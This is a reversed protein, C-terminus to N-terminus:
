RDHGRGPKAGSRVAQRLRRELVMVALSMLTNLIVRPPYALVRRALPTPPPPAPPSHVPM